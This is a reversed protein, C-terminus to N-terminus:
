SGKKLYNSEINSLFAYGNNNCFAIGNSSKTIIHEDLNKM